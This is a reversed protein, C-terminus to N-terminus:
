PTYCGYLKTSLAVSVDFDFVNYFGTTTDRAVGNIEEDWRQDVRTFYMRDRLNIQPTISLYKFLMFSASIPVSHNMSVQWDRLFNTKFLQNEKVSNIGIKGSM